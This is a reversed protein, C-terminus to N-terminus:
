ANEVTGGLRATASHPSRGETLLVYLNELTRTGARADFKERAWKGARAGLNAAVEPHQTLYTIAGSLDAPSRPPVLYVAQGGDTLEEVGLFRSAICPKGTVMAEVLAGAFGEFLSPFVFLGSAALLAPVDARQGLFQVHDEVGSERVLAELTGRLQGEGAIALCARPFVKLVEAMAEIAYRHGKQPVLRGVSLIVPYADAWSLGSKLAAIEDVGPPVLREAALGRPIVTIREPAIGLRRVASSKVAETVAVFWTGWRRATIGDLWRVAAVKAPTLRPNDLHWEPEYSTNVLTTLVPKHV